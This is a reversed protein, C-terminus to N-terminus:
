FLMLSLPQQLHNFRKAIKYRCMKPSNHLHASEADFTMMGFGAFFHIMKGKKGREKAAITAKPQETETTM